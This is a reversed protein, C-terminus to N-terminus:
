PSPRLSIIDGSSFAFVSFSITPIFGLFMSSRSVSNGQAMDPPMDLGIKMFKELDRTKILSCLLPQLVILFIAELSYKYMFTPKSPDKVNQPNSFFYIKKKKQCFFIKLSILHKNQKTENRSTQDM